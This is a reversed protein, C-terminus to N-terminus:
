QKRVIFTSDGWGYVRKLRQSYFLLHSGEICPRHPRHLTLDRRVAMKEPPVFTYISGVKPIVSFGLDTMAVVFADWGISGRPASSRLLLTSFVAFTSAKVEFTQQPGPPQEDSSTPAAAQPTIEYISSHAPRTKEKQRRQQIWSKPAGLDTPVMYEAEAESVKAKREEFRKYINSVCDDVLDQYLFGLKTGTKEVFYQDLAILAASAMGPELLNNIPIAFDGLDVGSKLQRLENELNSYESVFLHGNKRSTAPLRVASSLSQLFTVIVALDGLSDFEREMMKDIELPHARHLDELKQLWQASGPWNTEDQCLRLMYHLQPNEVTLSEPSRKMSIRVIGDKRVTSTRKFWKNGGSFASVTRKFFAQARTYELHCTNSLEQLVVARFQKDSSDKLLALLRSIYNWVAASKISGHVADFVAGSIYQDTHVPLSRGKEDAVLEPRTFFWLNVEHALVAPETSILSIYDELSSKQGLSDYLLDSLDLEKPPTHLSLKALAATAVDAPRKPHTTQARTSSATDLIDEIAINLHQLLYTQRMLVLEGVAQPIVLQAEIAPRLGPLVEDEKGPTIKYSQGYHEELFLTYCNTYTSADTLQLNKRQMMDVIHEHDGSRGNVGRCYQEELSTTARHKLIDLLFDSSPSTIDRLNWEPILKYVNGLSTDQPTELIARDHSADRLINGRQEQSFSRWMQEIRSGHRKFKGALDRHLVRVTEDM